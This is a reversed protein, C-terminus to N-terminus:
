SADAPRRLSFFRGFDADIRGPARASGSSASSSEHLALREAIEPFARMGDATESEIPAGRAFARLVGVGDRDAARAESDHRQEDGRLAAPDVTGGRELAEAAHEIQERARTAVVTRKRVEHISARADCDGEAALVVARIDDLRRQQHHAQESCALVEIAIRGCFRRSSRADRIEPVVDLPAPERLASAVHEIPM